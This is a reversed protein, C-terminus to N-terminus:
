HRKSRDLWRPIPRETFVLIAHLPTEKDAGGFAGAVAFGSCGTREGNESYTGLAMLSPFAIPKATMAGDTIDKKDRAHVQLVRPRKEGFASMLVELVETKLLACRADGLRKKQEAAEEPCWLVFLLDERVMMAMYCASSPLKTSGVIQSPTRWQCAKGILTIHESEARPPAAGEADPAGGDFDTEVRARARPARIRLMLSPEEKNAFRTLLAALSEDHELSRQMTPLSVSLCRFSVPEKASVLEPTSLGTERLLVANAARAAAWTLGSREDAMLESLYYPQPVLGLLLYRSRVCTSREALPSASPVWTVLLWRSGDVNEREDVRFLLMSPAADDAIAAVCREFEAGLSAGHEEQVTTALALTHGGAAWRGEGGAGGSHGVVITKICRVGSRRASRITTRLQSDVNEAWAM